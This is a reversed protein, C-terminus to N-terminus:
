PRGTLVWLLNAYPASLKLEVTNPDSAKVSVFNVLSDADHYQKTVLENISWAVDDADLKDGNSFTMGDNLHFTYTTGDDSVDWTKAIAPVVQNHEDRAVLGEYVNGILVQDIASGATNHIDLNTPALKLGITVTDNAKAGTTDNKRGAFAAICGAVVAVVAIVAVIAVIWWTARRHGAANKARSELQADMSAAASENTAATEQTNLDENDTAGADGHAGHNETM